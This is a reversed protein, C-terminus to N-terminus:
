REHYQSFYQSFYMAACSHLGFSRLRREGIAITFRFDHRGDIELAANSAASCIVATSRSVILCTQSLHALAASVSACRSSRRLTPKLSRVALLWLSEEAATVASRM